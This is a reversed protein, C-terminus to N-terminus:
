CHGVTFTSPDLICHIPPHCADICAGRTIGIWLPGPMHHCEPPQTLHTSPMAQMAHMVPASIQAMCGVHASATITPQQHTPSIIHDASTSQRALIAWWALSTHRQQRAAPRVSVPVSAISSRHVALMTISSLAKQRGKHISHAGKRLSFASSCLSTMCTTPHRKKVVIQKVKCNCAVYHRSAVYVTCLMPSDTPSSSSSVSRMRVTRSDAEMESARECALLLSIPLHACACGPRMGLKCLTNAVHLLHPLLCLHGALRCRM